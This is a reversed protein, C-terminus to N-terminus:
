GGEREGGDGREREGGEREGLPYQDHSSLWGYVDDRSFLCM